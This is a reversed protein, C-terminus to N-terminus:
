EETLDMHDNLRRDFEAAANYGMRKLRFNRAAVEVIIALNRGPRVPMEIRPLTVDLLRCHSEELGLRDYQKSDNWDELDIVLEIEKSTLVASVGYMTRVDVIGIGRIEMLHRVLEPATGILSNDPMRRIEVVDDAILRHGRQVLEMATESKGIGSEGTLMVGVGYVDMLVGHRTITPALKMDLFNAIRHNCKTTTIPSRLIPTGVKQAEEAMIKPVKHGRAIVLLPMSYSFFKHMRERMVEDSLDQLYTMEANGALQVRDHAFHMYYGAFQLGPLNLDSLEVDFHTRGPVSVTMGLEDAFERIPITVRM